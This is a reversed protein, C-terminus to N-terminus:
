TKLNENAEFKAILELYKKKFPIKKFITLCEWEERKMEIIKTKM